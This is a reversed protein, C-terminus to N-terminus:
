VDEMECAIEKEAYFTEGKVRMIIINGGENGARVDWLGNLYRAKCNRTTLRARATCRRVKKVTSRIILQVHM